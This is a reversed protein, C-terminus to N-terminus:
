RANLSTTEQARVAAQLAPLPRSPQELDFLHYDLGVLDNFTVHAYICFESNSETKLAHEYVHSAFAFRVWVTLMAALLWM